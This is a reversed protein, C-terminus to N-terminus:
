CWSRVDLCADCVKLRTLIDSDGAEGNVVVVRESDAVM